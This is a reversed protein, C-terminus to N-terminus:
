SQKASLLDAWEARDIGEAYYSNLALQPMRRCIECLRRRITGMHPAEYSGGDCEDVQLHIVGTRTWGVDNLGAEDDLRGLFNM